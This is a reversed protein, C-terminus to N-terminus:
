RSSARCTALVCNGERVKGSREFWWVHRVVTVPQADPGRGSHLRVDAVADRDANRSYDFPWIKQCARFSASPPHDCQWDDFDSVEHLRGDPTRAVIRSASRTAHDFMPFASFPFREHAVRAILFYGICCLLSLTVLRKPVSPDPAEM